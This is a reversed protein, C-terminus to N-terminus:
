KKLLDGLKGIAGLDPKGDGDSDLMDGLSDLKVKEKVGKIIANVQDDPLNVGLVKEIAKVPNKTFDKAFGKDKLVKKVIDEIKDKIFDM